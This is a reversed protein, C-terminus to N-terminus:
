QMSVAAPIKWTAFQGLSPSCSLCTCLCELTGFWWPPVKQIKVWRWRTERIKLHTSPWIFALNWTSPLFIHNLWTEAGASLLCKWSFLKLPFLELCSLWVSLLFPSSWFSYNEAGFWGLVWPTKPETWRLRWLNRPPTPLPSLHPQISDWSTEEVKRPSCERLSAVKERERKGMWNRSNKSRRARLSATIGRPTSQGEGWCRSNESSVLANKLFTRYSLQADWYFLLRM